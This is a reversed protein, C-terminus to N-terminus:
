TCDQSPYQEITQQFVQKFLNNTADYSEQTYPTMFDAEVCRAMYVFRIKPGTSFEQGIILKSDRTPCDESLEKGLFSLRSPHLLKGNKRLQPLEWKKGFLGELGDALQKIKEIPEDQLYLWREM